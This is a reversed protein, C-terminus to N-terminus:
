CIDESITPIISSLFSINEANADFKGAPVKVPAGFISAMFIILSISVEPRPGYPPAM